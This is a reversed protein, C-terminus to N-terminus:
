ASQELPEEHAVSVPDEDEDEMPEGRNTEFPTKPKAAGLAGSAAMLDKQAIVFETNRKIREDVIRKAEDLTKVDPNRKMEEEYPDTLQLRKRTEYVADKEPETMVQQVEGFDISWGEVSFAFEQLDGEAIAVPESADDQLVRAGNVMAMIQAIQLEIARFVPIREERIARIPANRMELEAGSTADKQSRVTPPVGHNAFAADAAHNANDRYQETDVGRDVASVTVGEGLMVEGDTDSSQGMPTASVDGSVYTQKSASISEKALNLDQLRVAKQASLLDISPCQALLSARATPETISCLVGPMRKLPWPKQTNAIIECKSNMVFSEDDTWVCYTEADAGALPARIDIIFGVLLTQDKPHAIAWFRAPSIVELVPEREGTPKVRVRYWLLADEHIALMRDLARMIADQRLKELFAQYITNSTNAVKRQAPRSYVTAKERAIRAIINDYKDLGAKLVEKRRLANKPDKWLIDIVRIMEQDGGGKFFEDLMQAHQRRSIEAPANIYNDRLYACVVNPDDTGLITFLSM